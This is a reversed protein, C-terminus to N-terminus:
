VDNIGADYHHSQHQVRISTCRTDVHVKEAGSGIKDEFTVNRLDMSENLVLLVM